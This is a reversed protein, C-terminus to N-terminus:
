EKFSLFFLEIMLIAAIALFGDWWVLIRFLQLILLIVAALGILFGQRFSDKLQKHTLPLEGKRNKRKQPRQRIWIFFLTTSSFLFVFISVMLILVVVISVNEIESKESLNRYPSFNLLIFVFVIAGIVVMLRLMWKTFNM